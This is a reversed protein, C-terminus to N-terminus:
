FNPKQRQMIMICTGGGGMRSAGREGEVHFSPTGRRGM